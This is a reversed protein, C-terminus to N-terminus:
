KVWKGLPCKETKLPTKLGGFCGCKGCRGFGFYRNSNHWQDCRPHDPTDDGECTLRRAALTADDVLKFGSRAWNLMAGAFRKAIVTAKKLGNDNDECPAGPTNECLNDDLQAEWDTGIPLNNIRRHRHAQGRVQDIYPHTIIVGTEPDLYRWGNGYVTGTNIPHRM